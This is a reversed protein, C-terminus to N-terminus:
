IESIYVRLDSGLSISKNLRFDISVASIVKGKKKESSQFSKCFYFEREGESSKLKGSCKEGGWM